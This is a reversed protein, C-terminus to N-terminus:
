SLFTRLSKNMQKGTELVCHLFITVILIDKMLRKLEKPTIFTKPVKTHRKTGVMPSSECTTIFAEDERSM